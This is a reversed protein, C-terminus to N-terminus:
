VNEGKGGILWLYASAFAGSIVLLVVGVAAAMHLDFNLFSEQFLRLAIVETSYGPGGATLAYVGEADQITWMTIILLVIAAHLKTLPLTVHRFKRLAGCGEVAAAEYLENPISAIGAALILMVFPFSRWVSHFVIAAMASRAGGLIMFDNGLFLQVVHSVPGRTPDMLSRFLVASVVPPTIWPILVLTRVFGAGRIRRTIVLAAGYGLLFSFGVNGVVYVVSRWVDARFRPEQALVKFLRGGAFHAVGDAGTEEFASWIGFTLPFLLLGALLALAPLLLLTATVQQRSSLSLSDRM